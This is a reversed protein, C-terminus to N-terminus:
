VAGAFTEDLGDDFSIEPRWGLTDWAASIDLTQSFAFLGVGYATVAPERKGGRMGALGELARAAAIAAWSPVTRWRVDVGARGGAREAVECVNLAQGGSINFVRQAPGPALDVAALVARVVDSVHTLDTVTRGGNLRPLARVRAAAILRPLLATDGKGYLGRPRLVVPDLDVLDLVRREAERKTAAYANVPRPLPQDERVQLQDAFRFYVSPTSVHVFRRATGRQALAVAAQTGDVNAAHFARYAGWPSSLAACHIVADLPGAPIEGAGPMSLDCAMVEVGSSALAALKSRDRGLAVVREGRERLASVVRGGLFGTAGTVLVRMRDGRTM